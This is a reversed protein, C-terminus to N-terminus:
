SPKRKLRDLEQEVLSHYAYPVQRAKSFFPKANPEVEIAAEYGKLTGVGREFLTRHKELVRALGAGEVSNITRWDLRIASLWNRGFLSPGSGRVVILQLQAEQDQYQVKGKM